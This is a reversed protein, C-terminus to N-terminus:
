IDLGCDRYFQRLQSGLEKDGKAAAQFQGKVNRSRFLLSRVARILWTLPLLVPFKALWPFMSCMDRLGPFCTRLVFGVRGNKSVSLAQANDRSGYVGGSFIFATLEETLPDTEGKEFLHRALKVVNRYFETLSLKELEQLVKSKDMEVQTEYVYIDMVFRLGVGGKKFHEVMHILNYVYEDEVTMAYAFQCGPLPQSREWVSQCYTDFDSRVSVLQRHMEIAIYPPRSYHDHTRGEQFGGYGLDEMARKVLADQEAKCLIDLDGMSRMNDQPYRLKTHIGKMCLSYLEKEEFAQQLEQAAFLQNSSVMTQQFLIAELEQSLEENPCNNEGLLPLVCALTNAVKHRKALKVLKEWQDKDLSLHKASEGRIVCGLLKALLKGQNTSNM